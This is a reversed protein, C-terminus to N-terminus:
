FILEQNKSNPHDPIRNRNRVYYLAAIILSTVALLIIMESFNYWAFRLPNRLGSSASTFFSASTSKIDAFNATIGDADIYKRYIQSHISVLIAAIMSSVIGTLNLSSWKVASSRSYYNLSLWLVTVISGFFLVSYLLNATFTEPLLQRVYIGAILIASIIIGTIFGTVVAKKM